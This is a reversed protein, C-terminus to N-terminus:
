KSRCAPLAHFFFLWFFFFVREAEERSEKWNEERVGEGWDKRTWVEMWEERERAVKGERRKGSARRRGRVVLWDPSSLAVDVRRGRKFVVWSEKRPEACNGGATQLLLADQVYVRELYPVQFKLSHSQWWCWCPVPM